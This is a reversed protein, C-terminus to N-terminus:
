VDAYYNNLWIRKNLLVMILMLPQGTYSLISIFINLYSYQLHSCMYLSMPEVINDNNYLINYHISRETNVM